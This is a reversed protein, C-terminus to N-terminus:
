QDADECDLVLKRTLALAEKQVTPVKSTFALSAIDRLCWQDNHNQLLRLGALSDETSSSAFFDELNPRAKARAQDPLQSWAELLFIQDPCRHMASVLSTPELEAMFGLSERARPAEQRAWGAVTQFLQASHPGICHAEQALAALLGAAQPPASGFVDDLVGHRAQLLEGAIRAARAEDKQAALRGLVTVLHHKELGPAHALIDCAALHLGADPSSLVRLALARINETVPSTHSFFALRELIVARCEAPAEGFLAAFEDLNAEDAVDALASFFAPSALKRSHLKGILAEWAGPIGSKSMADALAIVLPLRQEVKLRSILIEQVFSPDLGALLEAALQAVALDEDELIRGLINVFQWSHKRSLSLRATKAINADQDSVACMVARIADQDNYGSLAEAAALRLVPDAAPNGLAGLLLNRGEQIEGQAMVGAAVLRAQEDENRNKLIQLLEKEFGKPSSGFRALAGLAAFRLEKDPSALFPVFKSALNRHGGKVIAAIAAAQVKASPDALAADLQQRAADGIHGLMECTRARVEAKPSNLLKKALFIRAVTPTKEMSEFSLKMLEPNGEAFDTLIELLPMANADALAHCLETMESTHLGQVFLRFSALENGSWALEVERIKEQRRARVTGQLDRVFKVFEDKM